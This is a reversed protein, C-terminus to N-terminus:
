PAALVSPAVAAPESCIETDTSPVFVESPDEHSLVERLPSVQAEGGQFTWTDGMWGDGAASTWEFYGSTLLDADAPYVGCSFGSLGPLQWDITMVLLPDCDSVDACAVRFPAVSMGEDSATVDFFWVEIGWPGGNTGLLIEDLPDGDLQPTAYVWCGTKDTCRSLPGVFADARSIGEGPETTVGLYQFGERDEGCGTSPAEEFTFAQGEKDDAYLWTLADVNCVAFPVGALTVPEDREARPTTSGDHPSPTGSPTPTPAVSDGTTTPQWAPQFGSAGPVAAFATGDARITKIGESGGVFAIATGDPSWAPDGPALEGSYVTTRDTGDAAITVLDGEAPGLEIFAIRDLAWSWAPMIEASDPTRTLNTLESGDLRVSYIDWSQDPDTDSDTSAEFAVRTGDPSWTPRGVSIEDTGPVLQTDGTALDLVYIGYPGGPSGAFAIRLGDPSWAPDAVVWGELTLWTPAGGDIPVTALVSEGPEFSPIRHVVVVVRGDPSVDPSIYTAAGEPTLQQLGSGDPSVRFLAADGERASTFVIDGNTTAPVSVDPGETAPEPPRREDGGFVRSLGFVGVISGAVVALAVAVIGVRHLAYRRAGRRLVRDVVGTPDAPPSLRELETRLREDFKAM